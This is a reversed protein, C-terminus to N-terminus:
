SPQKGLLDDIAQFVEKATIQRMCEHSDCKKLFCPSCSLDKRLVHHRNGYPGTRAPDTPGFLGIVPTGVAAAIHMPGSDTSIVLTAKRYLCALERLSTEGALSVSASKMMAQIRCIKENGAGTFVVSLALGQVILDCLEAISGDEWLKTEWLAIPNVAVFKKDELGKTKLLSEVKRVEDGHTSIFFIPAQNVFADVYKEQSDGKGDFPFDKRCLYTIFDLYRLVAHKEIDEPIKETLFLGSLEQLSDYGLKRKGSSLLVILASKLLGHFDIVLDYDRSRVERIFELAERLFSLRCKKIDAIWKKRRSVIVRDLLPNDKILDSAAEEIVWTIHAHPYLKRLMALSPLTHVVDGIASLKIILINM